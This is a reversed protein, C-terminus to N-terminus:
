DIFYENVNTLRFTASFITILCRWIFVFTVQELPNSPNYVLESLPLPQLKFSKYIM